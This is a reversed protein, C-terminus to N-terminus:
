AANGGRRGGRKKPKRSDLWQERRAQWEVARALDGQPLSAQLTALDPYQEGHHWYAERVFHIAPFFFVNSMSM